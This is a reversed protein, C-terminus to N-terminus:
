ITKSNRYSSMVRTLLKIFRITDRLPHIYSRSGSYITKIPISHVSLNLRGAELLIESEIEYNCSCLRLKKLAEKRIFRYGCQSDPVRQRIISFLILSMVKNVIRRLIPMQHIDNMRNGIIIDASTSSAAKLFNSIDSVSHQGDGDLTIAGDYDKDQAFRFGARLAVGKGLNKKWGVVYAGCERAIIGTTDSSGDDIVLVDLNKNLLEKILNGITSAENYAPIVACIKMDLVKQVYAM